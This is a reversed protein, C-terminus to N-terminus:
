PGRPPEDVSNIGNGSLSVTQPSDNASDTLTLAAKKSGTRKPYFRVDIVCSKQPGITAGTCTDGSMIFDQQDDGGLVASNIYLKKGGTNTLTIRRPASTKTAVQNGFDISTPNISVSPPSKQQDPGPSEAGKKGQGLGVFCTAVLLLMTLAIRMM